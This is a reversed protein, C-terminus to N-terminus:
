MVGRDRLDEILRRLLSASVARLEEMFGALMTVQEEMKTLRIIKMMKLTQTKM